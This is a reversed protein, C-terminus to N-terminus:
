CSSSSSIWGDKDEYDSYSCGDSEQWGKPTYSGGMGYEPGDWRFEVGAEDAIAAAEQLKSDIEKLLVAIASLAVRQEEPTKEVKESM